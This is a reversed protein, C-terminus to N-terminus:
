LELTFEGNTVEYIAPDQNLIDVASFSFTGEIIGAEEDYDVIDSM